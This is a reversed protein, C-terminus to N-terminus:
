EVCQLGEKVLVMILGIIQKVQYQVMHKWLGGPAGPEIFVRFFVSYKWHIVGLDSVSSYYGDSKLVATIKKVVKGWGIFCWMCVIGVLSLSTKFSELTIATKILTQILRVSKM